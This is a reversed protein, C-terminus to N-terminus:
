PLHITKPYAVVDLNVPGQRRDRHHRRQTRGRRAESDTLIM